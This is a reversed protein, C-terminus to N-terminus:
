TFAVPGFDLQVTFLGATVPVNPVTPTGGQQTGTGVTATDLLKFQFDYQGNAPSGNDNLKGQYTFVTTQAMGGSAALLLVGLLLVLRRASQYAILARCLTVTHPLLNNRLKNM